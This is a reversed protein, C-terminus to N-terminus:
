NKLQEEKIASIESNEAVENTKVKEAEKILANNIRKMITKHMVSKKHQQEISKTYELGCECTYKMINRYTANFTLEPYKKANNKRFEYGLVLMAIIFDGHSCYTDSEEKYKRWEEIKGKGSRSNTNWYKKDTKNKQFLLPIETVLRLINDISSNSLMTVFATYVGTDDKKIIGEDEVILGLPHLQEKIATICRHGTEDRESIEVDEVNKNPKMLIKM